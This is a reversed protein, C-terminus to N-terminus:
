EYCIETIYKKPVDELLPVFGDIGKAAIRKGNFSFIDKPNAVYKKRKCSPFVMVPVKHHKAMVSLILGGMKCLVNKKSEEQYSIWVEKVLDKYFLFGAMNDAILVAKINNKLLKVCMEKAGDLYPRGELIFVEKIKRKKLIKLFSDKFVGNLLIISKKNETLM